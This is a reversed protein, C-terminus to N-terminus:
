EPIHPTIFPFTNEDEVQSHRQPMQLGAGHGGEQNRFALELTAIRENQNENERESIGIVVLSATMTQIPEIILLNILYGIICIFISATGATTKAITILQAIQQEVHQLREGVSRKGKTPERVASIRSLNGCGIM